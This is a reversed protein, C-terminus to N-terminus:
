LFHTWGGDQKLLKSNPESGEADKRKRLASATVAAHTAAKEELLKSSNMQPLDQEEEDSFVGFIDDM